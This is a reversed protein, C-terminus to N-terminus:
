AGQADLIPERDIPAALKGRCRATGCRCPYGTAYGESVDIAYDLFIAQGARIDRTAQIVVVLDGAADRDEVAEVNPECSHNIQRTANDGQAGDILSGDFRRFLYTLQDDWASHADDAGYRRGAYTGIRQGARLDLVAFVGQGHVGSRRVEVAQPASSDVGLKTIKM